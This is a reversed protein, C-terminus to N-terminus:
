RCRVIPVFCTCKKMAKVIESPLARFRDNDFFMKHLQDEIEKKHKLEQEFKEVSMYSEGDLSHM